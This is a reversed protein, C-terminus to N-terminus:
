IRYILRANEALILRAASRSADRSLNGADVAAGLCSSLAARGKIGVMWQLEPSGFADSSYVVKTFPEQELDISARSLTLLTLL